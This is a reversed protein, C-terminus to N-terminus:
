SRYVDRRHAIRAIVVLREQDDVVYVIRYDGVRIRFDDRGALKAAGAPRPNTALGDIATVIREV